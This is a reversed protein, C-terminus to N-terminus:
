REGGAGEQASVLRRVAAAFADGRSGYDRFMDMSACAPALLVTDGPEALHAAASAVDNMAETDTREVEVVPVRPAHRALADAIHRRDRGVLVVGRLRQEAERVLDDFQAGKALGGAIWVVTDYAALSAAAAHPNTAKSDDVWRVGDHEAVLTIRHPEPNFRRLGDRVASPPVGYARALAAAALANATNHPAAPRVDAVEALVVGTGGAGTGFARDVLCGDLVGIEGASPAGLTFRVTSPHGAARETTLPDDANSVAVTAGTFVRAKDAAYAEFSGHWDLHDPALNLLAGAFPRVSPAWHLQFSSLEVALVDYPPTALVAELLPTGINGAAVARRGAATLIATLMRVATTKGNTGTLALWPAPDTAPDAASRLRWALEVEGWVPVGRAAAEVLLPSNPRWGPSTVVLEAGDCWGEADGLRVAAGRATLDAAHEREGDGDRGDVVTVASGLRLLVDAAARGSVGIGAVCVSLENWPSGRDADGLWAPLAPSRDPTRSM